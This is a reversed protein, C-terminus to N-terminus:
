PAGILDAVMRAGMAVLPLGGGPHASGGVLFLGSVSGRNSPRLFAARRGNSSTGYIAGDPSRDRRALDRPTMTHLIEIGDELDIGRARLRDLVLRTCRDVDLDIAAPVNVLVFWNEAGSPAQTPDTVASVCAYITPDEPFRGSDLAAFEARYDGSFWVNHHRLGPTSGRRGVCLSFGSTSPEARRVRRLARRDDLLEGYLQRADVDAVVVEADVREGGALQVGAIRSASSGGHASATLLREVEAGTRISVGIRAAVRHLADRLAGLGGRVHWCGYRSEVHPICALAAPARYPSSGSYTAYRGVWQQLRPDDFASRAARDLSRLPDIAVLDAPSRMRRFLALPREIPGAFFTRESVDWGRRGREDFRRWAAGSGPAFREFAAATADPEDHVHLSTGEPWHYAFQPDLRVLDVEADLSTGACAFVEDLVHPLTLLSPGVDFTYGADTHTTLKGGVHDNRELMVVDHGAARLRIAVALGGVGAGVVAVSRDVVSM